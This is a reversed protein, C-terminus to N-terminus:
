TRRASVLGQRYADSNERAEGYDKLRLLSEQFRALYLKFLDDDGKMFIYAEGLAGYLMADPANTGLWSTGDSTATISTPRYYYHLETDYNSDPTPGVILNSIDFVGYYKPSGTSSNGKPSYTQIFNVDKPLLFETDGDSNTYSLSFSSLYDDPLQLFKNGSSLSGTVNKRFYDLDVQKLIREETTKIFNPLNTVFTSETNQTYDQIATKLTTFTWSM